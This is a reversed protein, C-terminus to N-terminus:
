SMLFFKIIFTRRSTAWNIKEELELTSYWQCAKGEFSLGFTNVKDFDVVEGFTDCIQEFQEIHSIPDVEDLYKTLLKSIVISHNRSPNHYRGINQNDLPNRIGRGLAQILTRM